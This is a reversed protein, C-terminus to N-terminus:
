RAESRENWKHLEIIGNWSRYKSSLSRALSRVERGEEKRKYDFAIPHFTSREAESHPITQDM